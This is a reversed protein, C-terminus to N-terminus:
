FPIEEDSSFYSECGFAIVRAPPKMKYKKCVEEPENFHDCTLCSKIIKEPLMSALATAERVIAVLHANAFYLLHKNLPKDSM